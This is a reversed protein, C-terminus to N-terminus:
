DIGRDSSARSSCCRLPLPPCISPKLIVKSHIFARERMRRGLLWYSFRHLALGDRRCVLPTLGNHLAWGGRSKLTEKRANRKVRASHWFIHPRSSPSCHNRLRPDCQPLPESGRLAVDGSFTPLEVLVHVHRGRLLSYLLERPRM